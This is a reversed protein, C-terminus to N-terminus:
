YYAPISYFVMQFRKPLGLSKLFPSVQSAGKEGRRGLNVVYICNKVGGLVLRYAVM